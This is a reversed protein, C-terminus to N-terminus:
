ITIIKNPDLYKNNHKWLEKCGFKFKESEQIQKVYLYFVKGKTIDLVLCRYPKSTVVTYIEEFHERKKFLGINAFNTYLKERDSASPYNFM